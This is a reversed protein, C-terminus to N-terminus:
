IARGQRGRFQEPQIWLQSSEGASARCGENFDLAIDLFQAAFTGVIRDQKPQEAAAGTLDRAVRAVLVLNHGDRALERALDAGIGSSAGTVLALPRSDGTIM